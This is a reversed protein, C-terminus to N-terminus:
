WVVHGVCLVVVVHGGLTKMCERNGVYVADCVGGGVKVYTV